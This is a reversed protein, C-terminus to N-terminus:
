SALLRLVGFATLAVGLVVALPAVVVPWRNLVRDRIRNLFGSARPGMVACVISIGILPLIYVVNYIGLLVVKGPLSASSGVIISIAAFYPFATVLEVGAIGAGMLVASQGGVPSKKEKKTRPSRRDTLAKRKVWIALGGLALSVGGAIILAYKVESSLRPLLSRVLEALGLMILVGGVLTVAFVSVAFMVTRRVPNRGAVLYLDALILSPNISDPLAIASVVLALSLIDQM